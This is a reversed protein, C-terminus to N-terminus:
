GNEARREVRRVSGHDLEVILDGAAALEPTHAAVVVMRDRALEKVVDAVIAVGAADLNADPEDLVVVSADQV